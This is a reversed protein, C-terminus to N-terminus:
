LESHFRIHLLTAPLPSTHTSLTSSPFSLHLLILLLISCLTRGQLAGAKQSPGQQYDWWCANLVAESPEPLTLSPPTPQQPPITTIILSRSLFLCVNARIASTLAIQRRVETHTHTDARILSLIPVVAESIGQAGM